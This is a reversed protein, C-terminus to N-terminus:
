IVTLALKVCVAEILALLLSMQWPCVAVNVNVDVLWPPDGVISHNFFPTAIGPVAPRVVTTKDPKTFPSTILLLSVVLMLQAVGAVTTEFVIEIVTEGFRTCVADILADLVCNHVPSDTLKINVFLLGPLEGTIFQYRLPMSIGPEVPSVLRVIAAGTFPSTILTISVVLAFHAVGTDIVVFEMVSVTIGVGGLGTTVDFTPLRNEDEAVPLWHNELRCGM